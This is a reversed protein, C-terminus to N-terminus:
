GFFFKFQKGEFEFVEFDILLKVEILLTGSLCTFCM